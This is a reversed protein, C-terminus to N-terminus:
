GCVNLGAEQSVGSLRRGPNSVACIGILRGVERAYATSLSSNSESLNRFCSCRSDGVFCLLNALMGATGVTQGVLNFQLNEDGFLAVDAAIGCDMDLQVAHAPAPVVLAAGSAILVLIAYRGLPGFKDRLKM